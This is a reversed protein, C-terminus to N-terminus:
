KLNLKKRSSSPPPAKERKPPYPSDARPKFFRKGLSTTTTTASRRGQRTPTCNSNRQSSAGNATNRRAPFVDQIRQRASAKAYRSSREEKPPIRSHLIGEKTSSKGKRTAEAYTSPHHALSTAAPQSKADAGARVGQPGGDFSPDSDCSEGLHPSPQANTTTCTRSGNYSQNSNSPTVPTKIHTPSTSFRVRLDYRKPREITPPETPSTLPRANIPPNSLDENNNPTTGKAQDPLAYGPKCRDISVKTQKENIMVTLTKGNNNIVPYPGEYLPQLSTTLTPIKIYVFKANTMTKPLYSKAVHQVNKRILNTTVKKPQFIDGPLRLPAGFTRAAPSLEDTSIANRLGLMVM